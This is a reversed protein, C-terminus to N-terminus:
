KGLEQCNICKQPEKKKESEKAKERVEAKSPM